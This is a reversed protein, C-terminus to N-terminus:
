PLAPITVSIGHFKRSNGHAEQLPIEASKRKRKKDKERRDLARYWQEQWEGWDHIFLVGNETDLWGTSILADVIKGAAAKKTIDDKILLEIDKQEVCRLAGDRDANNLGWLWLTTLIGIAECKSIGAAKYFERLKPGDIQEHVAIWAM